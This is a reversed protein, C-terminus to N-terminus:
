KRKVFWKTHTSRAPWKKPAISVSKKALNKQLFKLDKAVLVWRHNLIATKKQTAIYEVLPALKKKNVSAFIKYYSWWLSQISKAQNYWVRKLMNRMSARKDLKIPIQFARQHYANNKYQPIVWFTLIEGYIRKWKKLMYNIEKGSLKQQTPLM